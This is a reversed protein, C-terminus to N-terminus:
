DRLQWGGDNSEKFAWAQVARIDSESKRADEHGDRCDNKPHTSLFKDVNRWYTKPLVATLNEVLFGALNQEIDEHRNRENRHKPREPLLIKGGPDQLRFRHVAM